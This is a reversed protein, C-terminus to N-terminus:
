EGWIENTNPIQPFQVVYVNNPQVEMIKGVQGIFHRMEPELSHTLKIYNGAVVQPNPIKKVLNLGEQIEEGDNVGDDESWDVDQEGNLEAIMKDIIEDPTDDRLFGLEDKESDYVFDIFGRQWDDFRDHLKYTLYAAVGMDNDRGNLKEYLDDINQPMFSVFGSYSKFTEHLFNNLEAQNQKEIDAFLQQTFHSTTLLDYDLQDGRHNYERPSDIKIVKIGVIGLNLEKFENVIEQDIYKEARELIFKEYLNNDFYDWYKRGGDLSMIEPDRLINDSDLESNYMNVDIIPLLGTSLEVNYSKKPLNLGESIAKSKKYLQFYDATTTGDPWERGDITYNQKLGEDSKIVAVINYEIAIIEYRKGVTFSETPEQICLLEDGVEATHLPASKKKVLNLGENIEEGDDTYEKYTQPSKQFVAKGKENLEKFNNYGYDDVYYVANHNPDTIYTWGSGFTDVGMDSWFLDDMFEEWSLEHDPDIKTIYLGDNRIEYTIFDRETEYRTKKALNLGENVPNRNDRIIGTEDEYTIENGDNDYVFTEFNGSDNEWHILKGQDNYESKEWAGGSDEAYVPKNNENYQTKVWYGDNDGAYTQNGKDDFTYEEVFGQSNEFRIQNGHQDYERKEWKGNPYDGKIKTTTKKKALNLGENMVQFEPKIDEDFYRTAYETVIKQIDDDSVEEFWGHLYGAIGAMKDFIIHDPFIVFSIYNNYNDSDEENPILHLYEVQGKTVEQFYFNEHLFGFIDKKLKENITKKVLNLGEAIPEFCKNFSRLGISEILKGGEYKYVDYQGPTTNKYFYPNGQKFNNRAYGEVMTGIYKVWDNM